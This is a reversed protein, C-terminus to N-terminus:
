SEYDFAHQCYGGNTCFMNEDCREEEVHQCFRGSYSVIDRSPDHRGATTCDCMYEYVGTEVSGARRCSGGNFCTPAGPDSPDCVEFKLSCDVGGWGANCASCHEGGIEGPGGLWPLDSTPVPHDAALGGPPWKPGTECQGGHRCKLGGPCRHPHLPNPAAPSPLSLLLAPGTAAATLARAVM